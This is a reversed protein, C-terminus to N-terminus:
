AVIAPAMAAGLTMASLCIALLVGLGRRLMGAPNARAIAQALGRVHTVFDEGHEAWIRSEIHDQVM